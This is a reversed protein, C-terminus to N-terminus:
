FFNSKCEKNPKIKLIMGVQLGGLELSPNLTRLENESINYTRTLSYFTDGKVVQHETFKIKIDPNANRLNKSMKKQSNSNNM